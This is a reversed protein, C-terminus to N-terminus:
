LARRISLMLLWQKRSCNCEVPVILLVKSPNKWKVTGVFNPLAVVM